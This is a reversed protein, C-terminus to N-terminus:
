SGTSTYHRVGLRWPLLAAAFFLFGVAPALAQFLCNTGLPDDIGGIGSLRFTPSADL